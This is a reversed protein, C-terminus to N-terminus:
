IMWFDEFALSNLRHMVSIIVSFESEKKRQKNKTILVYYIVTEVPIMKGNFYVLVCYKCKGGCVGGPQVQEVRRSEL